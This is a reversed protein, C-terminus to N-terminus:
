RYRGRHQDADASGGRTKRALIAASPPSPLTPMLDRVIDRAPLPQEHLDAQAQAILGSREPNLFRGRTEEPKLGQRHSLLGLVIRTKSVKRAQVAALAIARAEGRPLDIQVPIKLTDAIKEASQHV